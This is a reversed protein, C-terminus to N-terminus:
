RAVSPRSPSPSAQRRSVPSATNEAITPTPRRPARSGPQPLRHRKPTVRAGAVPDGFEDVVRGSIAAGKRLRIELPEAAAPLTLELRAYGSKSAAVGIRGAPAQLAFRGDADALVVPTGPAAPTISVRANPIPDGTDDALVRGRITSQAGSAAAVVAIILIILAVRKM